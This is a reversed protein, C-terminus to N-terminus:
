QSRTPPWTLIAAILFGVGGLFTGWSDAGPSVLAGPTLALAAVASVGFMISGGMNAWAITSERLNSTDGRRLSWLALGSAVLFLTSGLADPVWVKADYNAADTSISLARITMVNFYLTGVLQVAAAWWDVCRLRNVACHHVADRWQVFAASTFFVAGLAFSGNAPGRSTVAMLAGTSFLISGISFGVSM